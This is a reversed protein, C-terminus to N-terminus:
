LCFSSSVCVDSDSHSNSKTQDFNSKILFIDVGNDGSKEGSASKEEPSASVDSTRRGSLKNIEANDDIFNFLRQGVREAGRGILQNNQYSGSVVLM